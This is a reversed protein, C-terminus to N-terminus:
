RFETSRGACRTRGAPCVEGRLQQDSGMDQGLTVQEFAEQRVSAQAALGADDFALHGVVREFPVFVLGSGLKGVGAGSCDADM